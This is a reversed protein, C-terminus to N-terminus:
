TRVPKITFDEKIWTALKDNVIILSNGDRHYKELFPKQSKYEDYTVFHNTLPLRLGVGLDYMYELDIDSIEKGVYPRGGYLPCFERFGYFNEIEYVNIKFAHYVFEITKKIHTREEKRASVSFTMGM